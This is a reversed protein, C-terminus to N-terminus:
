NDFLYTNNKKYCENWFGVLREAEKRSPCIQAIIINKVKIAYVLNENNNVKLVFSFYKKNEERVVALYANKAM